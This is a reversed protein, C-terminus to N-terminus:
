KCVKWFFDDMIDWSKANARSTAITKVYVYKVEHHRELFRNVWDRGLERSPVRRHLLTHALTYFIERDSPINCDDLFLLREALVKEEAPTLLQANQAAQVRTQQNPNKIHRRLTPESVGYTKAIQLVIPKKKQNAQHDQLESHYHSLALQLRESQSYIQTHDIEPLM